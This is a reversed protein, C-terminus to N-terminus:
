AGERGERGDRGDYGEREDPCCDPVMKGALTMDGERADDGSAGLLTM